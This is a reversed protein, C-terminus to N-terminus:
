KISDVASDWLSRRMPKQQVGGELAAQQVGSTIFLTISYSLLVIVLGVTARLATKRAKEIQESRGRSTVLWYGSMLLLVLFVTGTLGLVIKVLRAIFTQPKTPEDVRGSTAKMQKKIDEKVESQSNVSVAPAFLFLAIIAVFFIHKLKTM